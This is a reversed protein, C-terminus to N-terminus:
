LKVKTGLVKDTNNVLAEYWGEGITGILPQMLIGDIFSEDVHEKLAARLVIVAEEMATYDRAAPPPNMRQKMAEVAIGDSISAVEPWAARWQQILDTIKSPDHKNDFPVEVMERVERNEGLAPKWMDFTRNPVQVTLALTTYDAGDPTWSEWKTIRRPDLDLRKPFVPTGSPALAAGFRNVQDQHTRMAEYMKVIRDNPMFLGLKVRGWASSGRNNLDIDLSQIDSARLDLGTSLYEWNRRWKRVEELVEDPSQSNPESPILDSLRIVYDDFLDRQDQLEQYTKELESPDFTVNGEKQDCLVVVHWGDQEEAYVKEVFIDGATGPYVILHEGKGEQEIMDALQAHLQNVTMASQVPGVNFGVLVEDIDPLLTILMNARWRGNVHLITPGEYGAIQKRLILDDLLLGAKEQIKLANDDTPSQLGAATIFEDLQKELERRIAQPSM